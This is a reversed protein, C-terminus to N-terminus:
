GVYLMHRVIYLPLIICTCMIYFFMCGEVFVTFGFGLRRVSTCSLQSLFRCIAAVKGLEEGPLVRGIGSSGLISVVDGLLGSSGFVSM